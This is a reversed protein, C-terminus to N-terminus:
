QYYDIRGDITRAFKVDHSKEYALACEQSCLWGFNPVPVNGLRYCEEAKPKMGDDQLEAITKGCNQCTVLDRNETRDTDAM